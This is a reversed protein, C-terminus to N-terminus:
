KSIKTKKNEIGKEKIEEFICWLSSAVFISSYTGVIVGIVLPLSFEELIQQHYVAAFIYVIAIASITTLPTFITRRMTQSISMNITERIDKSKILKRKNERIRDYVIITDNISYGVVTLIVAVFSSNIPFKIIGYIAIIFLVDHALAIIATIAANIGLTKFRVGIYLLILVLSVTVALIASNVLEKGYSPQINKTSPEDMNPYRDKLNNVINDAVENSIVDTTIIVSSDGGTMKQIIPIQGTVNKVIDFVENNDFNEKLDVQIRTGGKFDIDFKYGTAIGYAIGGIIIILSIAIFLFRYKLFDRTM